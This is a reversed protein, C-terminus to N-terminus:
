TERDLDFTRGGAPGPRHCDDVASIAVLVDGCHSAPPRCAQASLPSCAGLPLESWVPVVTFNQGRNDRPHFHHCRSLGRCHVEVGCRLHQQPQDPAKRRAALSGRDIAATTRHLLPASGSSASRFKDNSKEGPPVITQNLPFATEGQPKPGLSHLARSTSTSACPRFCSNLERWRVRDGTQKLGSRPQRRDPGHRISRAARVRRAPVAVENRGSGDEGSDAGSRLKPRPRNRCRRRLLGPSERQGLHWPLPWNQLLRRVEVPWGTVNGETDAFIWAM